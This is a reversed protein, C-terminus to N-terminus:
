SASPSVIFRFTCAIFPLVNTTTPSLPVKLWSVFGFGSATGLSLVLIGAIGLGVRSLVFNHAGFPRSYNAMVLVTYLLMLSYGIAILRAPAQNGDRLIDDSSRTAYLDLHLGDFTEGSDYGSGSTRRHMPEYHTIFAKEYDLLLELRSDEDKNATSDPPLRAALAPSNQNDVSLATRIAVADTANDGSASFITGGIALASDVALGNWQRCCPIGTTACQEATINPNRLNSIGATVYRRLADDDGTFDAIWPRYAYGWTAFTPIVFQDVANALLLAESDGRAPDQPYAIKTLPTYIVRLQDVCNRHGTSNELASNALARALGTDDIARLEPPYDFGGDRFCDLASSRQCPFSTIGWSQPLPDIGDPLLKADALCISLFAYGWSLVTRDIGFGSGSTPGFVVPVAQRTCIDAARVTGVPSSDPIPASISSTNSLLVESAGLLARFAAVSLASATGTDTSADTTEDSEPADRALKDATVASSIVLNLDRSLGGFMREYTQRDRSLRSGQLVWQESVSTALRARYIGACLAAALVLGAAISTAAIRPSRALRAGWEGCARSLRTM